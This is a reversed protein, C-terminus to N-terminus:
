ERPILDNGISFHELSRQTQPGWLKDAPIQVQGLSDSETRFESMSLTEWATTACGAFHPGGAAHGQAFGALKLLIQRNLLARPMGRPNWFRQAFLTDAAGRTCRSIARGLPQFCASGSCMCGTSSGGRRSRGSVADSAIDAICLSRDVM